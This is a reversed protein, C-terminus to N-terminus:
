ILDATQRGKDGATHITRTKPMKDTKETVASVEPNSETQSNPWQLTEPQKQIVSPLLTPRASHCHNGLFTISFIYIYFGFEQSVHNFKPMSWSLVAKLTDFFLYRSQSQYYQRSFSSFTEQSFTQCKGQGM